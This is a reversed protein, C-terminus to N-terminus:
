INNVHFLLSLRQLYYYSCNNLLLDLDIHNRSVVAKGSEIFSMDLVKSANAVDIIKAALLGGTCSEATAIKYNHEILKNVLIENLEM